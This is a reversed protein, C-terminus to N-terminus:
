GGTMEVAAQACSDWSFRQKRPTMTMVKTRSVVTGDNGRSQLFGGLGAERSLSDSTM